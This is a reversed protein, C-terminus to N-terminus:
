SLPSLSFMREKMMKKEREDAENRSVKKGNEIYIVYYFVYFIPNQTMFKRSIFLYSSHRINYLMCMWPGLVLCFIYNSREMENCLDNVFDDNTTSTTPTDENSWSWTVYCLLLIWSSNRRTSGNSMLCKGDNFLWFPIEFCDFHIRSTNACACDCLRVCM